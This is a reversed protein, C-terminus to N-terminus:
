PPFDTVSAWRAGHCSKPLARCPEFFAYGTGGATGVAMGASAKLWQIVWVSGWHGDPHPQPDLSHGLPRRQGQWQWRGVLTDWQCVRPPSPPGRCLALAGCARHILEQSFPCGAKPALSSSSSPLAWDWLGPGESLLPARWPTKHTLLGQYSHPVRALPPPVDAERLLCCLRHTTTKHSPFISAPFATSFYFIYGATERDWPHSTNSISPSVHHVHPVVVTSPTHITSIDLGQWFGWKLHLQFRSQQSHDGQRQCFCPHPTPHARLPSSLLYFQLELGHPM